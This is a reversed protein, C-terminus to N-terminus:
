FVLFNKFINARNILPFKIEFVNQTTIDIISYCVYLIDLTNIGTINVRTDCRLAVLLSTYINVDFCFSRFYM